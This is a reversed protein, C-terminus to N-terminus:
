DHSGKKELRMTMDTAAGVIMIVVVPLIFWNGWLITFALACSLAVALEITPYRPSIRAGCHRCKGKNALYSGIPVLDRAGLVAHCSPCSSRPAVISIGRPLRYSLATVFSGLIAGVIFGTLAAALLPLSDIM